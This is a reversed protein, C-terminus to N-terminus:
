HGSVFYMDAPLVQLTLIPEYPFGLRTHGDCTFSNHVADDMSFLDKAAVTTSILLM